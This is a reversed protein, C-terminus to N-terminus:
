SLDHLGYYFPCKFCRVCSTFIDIARMCLKLCVRPACVGSVLVGVGGCRVWKRSEHSCALSPPPTSKLSMMAWVPPPIIFSLLVLIPPPFDSKTYAAEELLGVGRWQNTKRSSGNPTHTHQHKTKKEHVRCALHHMIYCAYM